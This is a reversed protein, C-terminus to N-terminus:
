LYPVIDLDAQVKGNRFLFINSLFDLRILKDHENYSPIRLSDLSCHFSLKDELHFIPCVQEMNSM